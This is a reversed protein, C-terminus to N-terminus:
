MVFCLLERVTKWDCCICLMRTTLDYIMHLNLCFDLFNFFDWFLFGPFLIVSFHFGLMAFDEVLTLSVSAAHSLLSLLLLVVHSLPSVSAVFRRSLCLL